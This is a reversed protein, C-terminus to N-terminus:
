EVQEDEGTQEEKERSRRERIAQIIADFDEASRFPWGRSSKGSQALSEYGDINAGGEILVKAVEKRGQICAWALPTNEWNYDVAEVDAGAEILTKCVSAADKWVALGLLTLNDREGTRLELIRPEDKLLKAIAEGDDSELARRLVSRQEDTPVFGPTSPLVLIKDVDLDGKADVVEVRVNLKTEGPKVRVTAIFENWNRYGSYAPDLRPMERSDGFVNMLSFVVGGGADKSKGRVMAPGRMRVYFTLYNASGPLDITTAFAVQSGDNAPRLRVDGSSAVANGSEFAEIEDWGKPRLQEDLQEFTGAAFLNKSLDVHWHTESEFESQASVSGALCIFFCIARNMMAEISYVMSKM